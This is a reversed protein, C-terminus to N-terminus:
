SKPWLIMQTCRFLALRKGSVESIAEADWVHTTRGLHLPTAIGVVLGSTATAFFNSKLEITTFGNAGPPLNAVTGYGCLTDVLTVVAGAHLFGNPAMHHPKVEFGAELRAPTSARFMIGLHGPLANAGVAELAQASLDVITKRHLGNFMILPPTARLM